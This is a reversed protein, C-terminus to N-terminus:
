CQPPLGNRFLYSILYVVDDVNVDGECTADGALLPDPPSDEKFLYNILFVVDGVEIEGDRNADGHKAAVTNVSDTIGWVSFQSLGSSTISNVEPDVVGDEFIWTSESSDYRCLGLQSEDALGSADFEMQDYFLTMAAEFSGEEPFPMISYYRAVWKNGEPIDPPHGGKYVSVTVSDLEESVFNLIAITDPGAAFPIDTGTQTISM